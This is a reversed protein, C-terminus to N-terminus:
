NDSVIRLTLTSVYGDEIGVYMVKSGNKYVLTSNKTENPEGYTNKVTTESSGITVGGTTAVLDNKIEIQDVRAGSEYEVVIMIFSSYDYRVTEGLGGCNGTSQKSVPEGIKAVVKKADGDLAVTEGNYKIVFMDEEGNDVENGKQTCAAFAGLAVALLLAATIIRLINKKM